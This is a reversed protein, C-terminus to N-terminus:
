IRKKAQGRVKRIVTLPRSPVQYTMQLTVDRRKETPHQYIMAAQMTAWGGADMLARLDKAEEMLHTAWTHRLDHWRVRGKNLKTTAAAMTQSLRSLKVDFVKGAVQRAGMAQLAIPHIAQTKTEPKARRTKSKLVTMYWKGSSALEVGSWDLNLVEGIRLGTYLVFVAARACVEPLHQLIAAVEQPRLVRAVPVAPPMEFHLFPDRDIYEHKQGWRFAAKLHRLTMRAYNISAPKDKSLMWACFDDPTHGGSAAKIKRTVPFRPGSFAAWMNLSNKALFLTRASRNADIWAEYEKRFAPFNQAATTPLPDLGSSIRQFQRRKVNAFEHADAKYIFVQQGTGYMGTWRCRHNKGGPEIWVMWGRAM